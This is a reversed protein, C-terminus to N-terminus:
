CRVSHHSTVRVTPKGRSRRPHGVVKKGGYVQMADVQSLEKLRKSKVKLEVKM